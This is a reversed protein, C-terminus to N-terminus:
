PGKHLVDSVEFYSLTKGVLDTLRETGPVPSKAAGPAPAVQTTAAADASVYRLETDGIRIVDGPALICPEAVRKGNVFTGSASSKNSLLLQDGDVAVECHVRSVHPDTLKTDTEKARGIVFPNADPLAFVRGKDPGATILLEKSMLRAERWPVRCM